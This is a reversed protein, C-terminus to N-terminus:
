EDDDGDGAWTVKPFFKLSHWTFVRVIDHADHTVQSFLINM